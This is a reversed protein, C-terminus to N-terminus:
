NEGCRGPLCNSHYCLRCWVCVCLPLASQRHLSISFITFLVVSSCSHCYGSPRQEPSLLISVRTLLNHLVTFLAIYIICIFVMNVVTNVASHTSFVGHETGARTSNDATTSNFPHSPTHIEAWDDTERSHTHTHTNSYSLCM